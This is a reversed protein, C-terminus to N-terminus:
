AEDDWGDLVSTVFHLVANKDEMRPVVIKPLGRYEPIADLAETTVRINMHRLPSSLGSGADAYTAFAMAFLASRGITPSMAAIMNRADMVSQFAKTRLVFAALTNNGDYMRCWSVLNIACRIGQAELWDVISVVALAGYALVHANESASLATHVAVVVYPAAGGGAVDATHRTRQWARDVRGQNVRHIDLFDGQDAWTRVRKRGTAKPLLAHLEQMAADYMKEGKAWGKVLRVWSMRSMGHPIGIKEAVKDLEDFCQSFEDMDFFSSLIRMDSLKQPMYERHNKQSLYRLRATEMVSECYHIRAVRGNDVKAKLNLM